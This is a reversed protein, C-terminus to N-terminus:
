EFDKIHEALFSEGIGATLLTRHGIFPLKFRERLAPIVSDTIKGKMEHPVAPMSVFICGDKDFWMGPATGRKNPIVTCTDPVEAQLLNREIMPRQLREFIKKVND